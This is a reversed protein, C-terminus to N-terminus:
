LKGLSEGHLCPPVSSSMYFARGELIAGSTSEIKAQLWQNAEHHGTLRLEMYNDTLANSSEATPSHLTIAPITQGVFSRAFSQKKAAILDRLVQHRERAIHVPVQGPLAAAPTGPRPSYPFIHLYTLPLDEVM